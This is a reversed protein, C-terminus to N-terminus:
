GLLLHPVQLGIFIKIASTYNFSEYTCLWQVGDFSEVINCPRVHQNHCNLEKIRSASGM